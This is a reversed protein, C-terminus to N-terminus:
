IGHRGAMRAVIRQKDELGLGPEYLVAVWPVGTAEVLAKRLIHARELAEAARPRKKLPELMLRVYRADHWWEIWCAEVTWGSGAYAEAVMLKLDDREPLNSPAEM